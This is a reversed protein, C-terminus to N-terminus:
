LSGGLEEQTKKFLEVMDEENKIHKFVEQSHNLQMSLDHLEYLTTLHSYNDSVVLLGIFYVPSEEVYIPTELHVFKLLFTEDIDAHLHLLLIQNGFLFRLEPKPFMELMEALLNELRYTQLIESVQKAWPLDGKSLSMNESILFSELHTQYVEEETSLTKRVFHKKISTKLKDKHSQSLKVKLIKEIDNLFAAEDVKLKRYNPNQNLLIEVEIEVLKEDYNEYDSIVILKDKDISTFYSTSFVLDYMSVDEMRIFERISIAEDFVFNPFLKKLRNRLINSTAIGGECVVLCYIDREDKKHNALINSQLYLSLFYVETFPLKTGFYLELPEISKEVFHRMKKLENSMREEIFIREESYDHVQPAKFLLPALHVVLKDILSYKEKLQIASNAEFQEIFDNVSNRLDIKHSGTANFQYLSKPLSNLYNTLFEIEKDNVEDAFFWRQNMKIYDYERLISIDNDKNELSPVITFGNEIRRNVMLLFLPIKFYSEDSFTYHFEKEIREVAFAYKEYLNSAGPLERDLARVLFMHDPNLSIMYDIFRRIEIELGKYHYGDKRSYEISVKFPESIKGLSELDSLATNKSVRLVDSLDYTSVDGQFIAIYISIMIMRLQEEYHSFQIENADLGEIFSETDKEFIFYGNERKLVSVNSELLWENIKSFRYNMQGPTFDLIELIERIKLHRHRYLKILYIYDSQIM